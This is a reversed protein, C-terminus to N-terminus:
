NSRSINRAEDLYGSRFSASALFDRAGFSLSRKVDDSMGVPIDQVVDYWVTVTESPWPSFDRAPMFGPQNCADFGPVDRQKRKIEAARKITEGAAEVMIGTAKGSVALIDGMSPAGNRNLNAAQEAIASGYGPIAQSAEEVATVNRTIAIEYIDWRKGGREGSRRDRVNMTTRTCAIKLADVGGGFDVVTFQAQKGMALPFLSAIKAADYEMDSRGGRYWNPVHNIPFVGKFLRIDKHHHGDKYLKAIIEDGTSDYRITRIGGREPTDADVSYIGNAQTPEVLASITNPGMVILMVVICLFSVGTIKLAAQSV